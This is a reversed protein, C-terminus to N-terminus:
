RLDVVPRPIAGSDLQASVANWDLLELEGNYHEVVFTAHEVWDGTNVYLTGEHNEIEPRHIHGCIVGNLGRARAASVLADEFGTKRETLAKAKRKLRASFDSPPKRLVRRVTNVFGNFRTVFEYAWAMTWAFAKYRTVFRDYEDGHIVWFERGDATTHVFEHEVQSNFLELGNFRRMVADHNGPTYRVRCTPGTKQMLAILCNEHSKKWRNPRGGVWGDIVDGVLYLFECDISALFRQVELARSGASGLHLDSLFVSRYILKTPSKM